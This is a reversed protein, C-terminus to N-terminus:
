NPSSEEAADEPDAGHEEHTQKPETVKPAAKKEATPAATERESPAEEEAPEESMEQELILIQQARDEIEEELRHIEEFYERLSIQYNEESLRDAKTAGYVFRGLEKFKGNIRHKISAIEVRLTNIRWYKEAKRSIKISFDKTFEWVRDKLPRDQESM